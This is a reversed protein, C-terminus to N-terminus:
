PSTFAVPDYSSTLLLSSEAGTFYINFGNHSGDVLLDLYIPDSNSVLDVGDLNAGPVSDFTITTNDSSLGVNEYGSYGRLQSPDFTTDCTISGSFHAASGATDSWTLRYGGQGNATVVFGIDGAPLESSAGALVHYGPM